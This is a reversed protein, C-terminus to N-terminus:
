IGFYTKLFNQMMVDKPKGEEDRSREQNRKTITNGKKTSFHNHM